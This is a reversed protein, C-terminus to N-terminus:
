PPPRCGLAAEIFWFFISGYRWEKIQRRRHRERFTSGAGGRGVEDSFYFCICVEILPERRQGRRSEDYNHTYGLLGTQILVLLVLLLEVIYALLFHVRIAYLRTTLPPYM